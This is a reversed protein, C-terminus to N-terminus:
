NEKMVPISKDAEEASIGLQKYSDKSSLYVYSFICQGHCILTYMHPTVVEM